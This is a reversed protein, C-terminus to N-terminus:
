QVMRRPVGDAGCGLPEGQSEERAKVSDHCFKCLSQINSMDFALDPRQRIPVVHDAVEATRLIGVEGCYRCLPERQLQQKALRTWQATSHIRGM